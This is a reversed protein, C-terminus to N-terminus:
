VDATRQPPKPPETTQSKPFCFLYRFAVLLFAAFASGVVIAAIDGPSLGGGGGGISGATMVACAIRSGDFAHIIFTHGDIESAALGTEVSFTGQAQDAEDATYAVASWPDSATSYYHGLADEACSTGAHIHIGCSNAAGGAGSSCAPDVGDLSFTFTQTAVALHSTTIPDISGSVQLNGSYSFYPVFGRAELFQPPQMIIACAIRSGDFAHIIFTHGEIESAALGTEVSFTGQAQDAEDATYAVASWPDSATSYYHGLADEACSTGAHIHIGCSNAAGGAGSSCAPDVGDLSFTFTQSPTSLRDTEIDYIVGSVEFGSGSNFYPVFGSAVFTTTAM